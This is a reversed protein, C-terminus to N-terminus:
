STPWAAETQDLFQDIDIAGSVFDTGARWWEGGGVEGPMLDSADFRFPDASVLIEGLTRDLDASYLSTDHNKNPSLFGGKDARIRENAYEPTGLFRIAAMVEPRDAFAVAHVGAGLVVTGFEDSITPLYFVDIDKGPGVEYGATVFQAAYFNAQRHMMCEGTGVCLGGEQFGLTAATDRGGLVNGETFWIDAVMQAVDKVQPDNFPIEHAVWQDYVAPGHLRLMIDEMWDTFPWGTADGSGIGVGWPVNGDAKMQEQLAMLEDWTTPVEYGFEEFKAPNYWVLSKVDGKFAVGYVNGEYSALENWFPDLNTNLEDVIDQPLAIAAGSEAFGVTRGPQPIIAIDPPTGAELALNLETTADRTSQVVIDVGTEEEFPVFGLEFGEAEAGTEPTLITVTTGALDGGGSDAATTTAGGDDGGDDGATDDDGGCAAVVMAFVVLLMLWKARKM